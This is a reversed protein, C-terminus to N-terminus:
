VSLFRYVGIDKTLIYETRIVVQYLIKKKWLLYGPLLVVLPPGYHISGFLITILLLFLDIYLNKHTGYQYTRNM